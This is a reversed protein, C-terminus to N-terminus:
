RCIYHLCISSRPKACCCLRDGNKDEHRDPEENQQASDDEHTQDAADEEEVYDDANDPSDKNEAQERDEIAPSTTTNDDDNTYDSSM